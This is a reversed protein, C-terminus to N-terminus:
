AHELRSRYEEIFVSRTGNAAILRKRISLDDWPPQYGIERGAKEPDQRRPERVKEGMHCDDGMSILVRRDGRRLNRNERNVVDILFQTYRSSQPNWVEIADIDLGDLLIPWFQEPHPITVCAGLARAEEIVERADYFYDLPFNLKVIKKVARVFAQVHHILRETYQGTLADFYNRVLKNKVMQAPISSGHHDILSKLRSTHIRVFEILHEDAGTKGAAQQVRDEHAPDVLSEMLDYLQSARYKATHAVMGKFVDGRNILRENTFHFLLQVKTDFSASYCDVEAGTFRGYTMLDNHQTPILLDDERGPYMTDIRTRILELPIHEPHWHIGVVNPQKPYTVPPSTVAEIQEPTLDTTILGKFIISDQETPERPLGTIDL